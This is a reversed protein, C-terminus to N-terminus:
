NDSRRGARAGVAALDATQGERLQRAAAIALPEEGPRLTQRDIDACFDLWRKRIEVKAAEIEDETM